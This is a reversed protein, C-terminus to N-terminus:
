PKRSVRSDSNSRDRGPILARFGKGVGKSVGKGMRGVWNKKEPPSPTWLSTITLWHQADPLDQLIWPHRKIEQLTLRETPDKQLMGDLLQMVLYGESRRDKPHRGGTPVRDKGMTESPVWDRTCIVKNMVFNHTPHEVYFPLHGFLCCYITVGLSWIDIAKTCTPQTAPLTDIFPLPCSPYEQSCDSSSDETISLMLRSSHSSRPEDSGPPVLEPHTKFEVMWLCEPALFARTGDQSGLSEPSESFLVPDNLVDMVSTRTLRESVLVHSVSFDCIKVIGDAGMLLNDPKIDRHVIGYHHLFELGLVVDRLVRRIQSVSLAPMPDDLRDEFPVSGRLIEEMVLYLKSRRPDDIVEILPVINPHGMKTTAKLIGIERLARYESPQLEGPAPKQGRRLGRWKDGELKRKVVKIVVRSGNPDEAKLVDTCHRGHKIRDHEAVFYQNYWHGRPDETDRFTLTSTTITGPSTTTSSTPQLPLHSMSMSM